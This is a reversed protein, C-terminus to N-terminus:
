VWMLYLGAISITFATGIYLRGTWRHFVPFRVRVRPILQLAGALIIVVASGLHTLLALNGVSDGPIYGHTLFKNWRSFDGRLATLGYFSAVTFAFVLQGVVAVAFWFRTAIKLTTDAVSDLELRNTLVATSM